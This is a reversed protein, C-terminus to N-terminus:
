PNAEGRLLSASIFAALRIHHIISEVQKTVRKTKREKTNITLFHPLFSCCCSLWLPRKRREPILFIRQNKQFKSKGLRPVFRSILYSDSFFLSFFFTWRMWGYAVLSEHVTASCTCGDAVTLACYRVLPPILSFKYVIVHSYIHLRNRRRREGNWCKRMTEFGGLLLYLGLLKLLSFIFRFFFFFGM